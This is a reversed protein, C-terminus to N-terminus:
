RRRLTEAKTSHPITRAWNNDREPMPYALLRGSPFMLPRDVPHFDLNILRLGRHTQLHQQLRRTVQLLQMTLLFSLHVKVQHLEARM